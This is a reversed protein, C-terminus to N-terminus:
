NLRRRKVQARKALLRANWDKCYTQFKRIRGEVAGTIECLRTAPVDPIIDPTLELVSLPDECSTLDLGTSEAFDSLCARLESGSAPLPSLPVSADMSTRSQTSPPRLSSTHSPSPSRPRKQSLSTLLPLMAAM